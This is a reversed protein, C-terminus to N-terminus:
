RGHRLDKEISATQGLRAKYVQYNEMVRQVYNRTEPFPIREVWDVVDDIPLGRPDGYRAIWESVRKPGANYAIFTLIYSGRYNSIQEGLYHAGLTANYGADTTLREKSYALGHRSAIGKATGPLIQLLGRADAPSVAAPNFASEQRAIAYALATGSGGIDASTPIVGIPFALAPVDIGRAYATKGIQLSLQHDGNREVKTTLLALEAPSELQQALARYLNAARRGHGSQEFRDIAQVAERSAFRQRESNTPSPYRIDLVNRKLRAAALQGYFTGPFNAAKIFKEQAAATDGAAEATRGLWYWARSVSIPGSSVALIRSFHAEATKEDGLGRLAYWGAHFEADVVDTPETAGHRSVIEYAQRVKGLDALGRAVIRQENWWEGPNVLKDKERPAEALLKAAEAYRDKQRLREIRLFLYAPDSSWRNDVKAILADAKSSRAQVAVWANYLSQAEGLKSFRKAQAVRGRYMLYDMRTKHDATSLLDSFRKLFRDETAVDLAEGFWFKRLTRRAGEVNGTEIQAKALLMAGEPTEPLTEGFAALVDKAPPAERYLARETNIHFAATGPWGKLERQAAAIESSSVESLGSMAISWTLIRRDLSPPMRNRITLARRGDKTSLADLGDKLDTRRPVLRSTRPIAGTLEFSPLTTSDPVFRSKKMPVPVAEAVAEPEAHLVLAASLGLLILSVGLRKM